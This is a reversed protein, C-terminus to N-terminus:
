RCCKTIRDCDPRTGRRGVHGATVAVDKVRGAKPSRLENEMKMAEVVVVGQRAAVTTAPRWSCASWAARCRRSSRRSATRRRRRRPRRRAAHAAANVTAAVTRGDIGVLLQGSRATAPRRSRFRAAPARMATSCCRCDSARRRPGRGGRAAQRRRDRPVARGRHARGVRHPQSRQDRDRVDDACRRAGRPRSGRGRRGGGRRVRAPASTRM